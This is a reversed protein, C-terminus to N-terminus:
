AQLLLPVDRALDFALTVAGLPPDISDRGLAVGPELGRRGFVEGGERRRPIGILGSKVEYIFFLPGDPRVKATARIAGDIIPFRAKTIAHALFDTSHGGNM